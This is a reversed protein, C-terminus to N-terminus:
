VPCIASMEAHEVAARVKRSPGVAAFCNPRMTPPLFRNAHSACWGARYSPPAAREGTTPTGFHEVTTEPGTTICEDGTGCRGDNLGSGAEDDRRARRPRM